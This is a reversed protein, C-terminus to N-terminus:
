CDERSTASVSVVCAKVFASDIRLREIIRVAEQAEDYHWFRAPRKVGNDGAVKLRSPVPGDKGVNWIDIEYM